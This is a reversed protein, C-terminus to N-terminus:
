SHVAGGGGKGRQHGITRAPRQVATGWSLTLASAVVIWEGLSSRAGVTKM